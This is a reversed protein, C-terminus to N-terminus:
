AGGALKGACASAGGSPPETAGPMISWKKALEDRAGWGLKDPAPVDGRARAECFLAQQEVIGARMDAQAARSTGQWGIYNSVLPGTILGVAFAFVLPKATEWKSKIPQMSAMLSKRGM